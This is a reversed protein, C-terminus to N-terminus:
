GFDSDRGATSTHYEVDSQSQGSQANMWKGVMFAEDQNSATDLDSISNLLKKRVDTARQAAVVKESAALYPNVVNLNTQNGHIRM